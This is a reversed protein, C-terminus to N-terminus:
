NYWLICYIQTMSSPSVHGNHLGNNVQQKCSGWSSTQIEHATTYGHKPIGLFKLHPIKFFLMMWQPCLFKALYTNIVM